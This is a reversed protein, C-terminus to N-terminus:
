VSVELSPRGGLKSLHQLLREQYTVQYGLSHFQPITMLVPFGPCSKLLTSLDLRIGAKYELVVLHPLCALLIECFGTHCDAPQKNMASICHKQETELDNQELYCTVYMM